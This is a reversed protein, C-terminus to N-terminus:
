SKNKSKFSWIKWRLLRQAVKGYFNDREYSAKHFECTYFESPDVYSGKQCDCYKRKMQVAVEHGAAGKVTFYRRGDFCRIVIATELKM